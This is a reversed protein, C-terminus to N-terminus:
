EETEEKSARLLQEPATPETGASAPRLLADAQGTQVASVSSPRLYQESRKFAEAKELLFQLCDNAAHHINKDRSWKAARQVHPLAEKDGVQQLAKLIDVALEKDYLNYGRMPQRNISRYLCVRQERTLLDADSAQLRPLLRRLAAVVPKPKLFREADLAEALPGILKLDNINAIVKNAQRM